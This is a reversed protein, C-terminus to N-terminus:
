ANAIAKIVQSIGASEFHEKLMEITVDDDRIAGLQDQLKSLQNLAISEARKDPCVELLYRLSKCDKRLTHLEDLRSEAVLVLHLKQNIRRRLRQALKGFRKAIKAESLRPSGMNPLNSNNLRTGIKRTKTVCDKRRIRIESLLGRLLGKQSYNELNTRAIDLDRIRTTTKFFRLWSKMITRLHNNKRAKGPLLSYAAELRRISTRLDHTHAENPDKLYDKLAKWAREYCRNLYQELDKATIKCKRM